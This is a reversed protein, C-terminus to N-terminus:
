LVWLLVDSVGLRFLFFVVGFFVVETVVFEGLGREGLGRKGLLFPALFSALPTEM